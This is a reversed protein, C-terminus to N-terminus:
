HPRIDLPLMPEIREREDPHLHRLIEACRREVEAIHEAVVQLPGPPPEPPANDPDHAALLRVLIRYRLSDSTSSAARAHPDDLHAADMPAADTPIDM